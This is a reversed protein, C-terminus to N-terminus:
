AGDSVSGSCVRVDWRTGVNQNSSLDAEYAGTIGPAAAVCAGDNATGVQTGDPRKLTLSGTGRWCVKEDGGNLIDVFIAASADVAQDHALFGSSGNWATEDVDLDASGEALAQTCPLVAWVMLALWPRCRM